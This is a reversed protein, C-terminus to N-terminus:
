HIICLSFIFDNWSCLLTPIAPITTGELLFSSLNCHLVTIDADTIESFSKSEVKYSGKLKKKGKM